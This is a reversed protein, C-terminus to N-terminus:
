STELREGQDWWLRANGQEMLLDMPVRSLKELQTRDNKYRSYEGYVNTCLEM